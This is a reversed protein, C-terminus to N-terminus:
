NALRRIFKIPWKIHLHLNIAIILYSAVIFTFFGRRTFFNERLVLTYKLEGLLSKAEYIRNEMFLNLARSVKDRRKLNEYNKFDDANLKSIIEPDKLYHETVLFFDAENVGKRAAESGQLASIRYSMGNPIFSVLHKHAV